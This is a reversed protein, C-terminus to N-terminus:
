LVTLRCYMCCTRCNNITCFCYIEGALCSGQLLAGISLLLLGFLFGNYQFHIHDVLFLGSNCVLLLVVTTEATPAIRGATHKLSRAASLAGAAFVLDTLIVSLRQFLITRESAYNLNDVRLMAPDFYVAAQWL